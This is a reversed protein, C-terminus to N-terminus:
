HDDSEDDDSSDHDDEHDDSEDDDHDDEHDDSSDDDDDDDHGSLGGHDDDGDDDDEHDFSDDSGETVSSVVPATEGDRLARTETKVIQQTERDYIVETKTGETYAEVKVFNPGVYIEVSVYKEGQPGEYAQYSALLGDAFADAHAPTTFFAVATMAAFVFKRM